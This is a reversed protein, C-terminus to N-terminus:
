NPDTGPVGSIFTDLYAQLKTRNTFGAAASHRTAWWTKAELHEKLTQGGFHNLTVHTKTTISTDLGGSPIESPSDIFTTSASPQTKISNKADIDVKDPTTPNAGVSDIWDDDLMSSALLRTNYGNPEDYGADTSSQHGGLGGIGASDVDDNDALFALINSNLGSEFRLWNTPAIGAAGTGAYALVGVQNKIAKNGEFRIRGAITGSMTTDTIFHGIGGSWMFYLNNLFAMNKPARILPRGEQHALICEIVAIRDRHEFIGAKNHTALGGLSRIPYAGLCKYYTINAANGSDRDAFAVSVDFIQDTSFAFSCNYALNNQCLGTSSVYRFACCGKGGVDGDLRIAIHGLIINSAKISHFAGNGHINLHGGPATSGWITKDDNNINVKGGSMNIIGGVEFLIPGKTSNEAAALYSGSGSGNLNQVYQPDHGRGGTVNTGDEDVNYGWPFGASPAGGTDMDIITVQAAADGLTDTGSGITIAADFTKNGQTVGDRDLITVAFTKDGTEADIWNLSGSADTYDTGDVGTGDSLTWDVQLAGSGGGTRTVTLTVTGADENVQYATAALGVNSGPSHDVAATSVSVNTYETAAFLGADAADNPTSALMGKLATGSAAWSPFQQDIETWSESGPSSPSKDYFSKVSSSARDLEIKFAIPTSLLVVDPSAVNSSSGAITLRQSVRSGHRGITNPYVFQADADHNVRLMPGGKSFEPDGTAPATHSFVWVILTFDETSGIDYTWGRFHDATSWIEGGTHSLSFTSTAVAYEAESSVITRVGGDILVVSWGAPPEETPPDSGEVPRRRHIFFM